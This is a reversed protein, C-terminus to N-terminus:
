GLGHVSASMASAQVQIVSSRSLRFRSPSSRIARTSRWDTRSDVRQLVRFLPAPNNPNNEAMAYAQTQCAADQFFIPFSGTLINQSDLQFTVWVGNDKRLVMAQDLTEGAIVAKTIGAVTGVVQGSASM